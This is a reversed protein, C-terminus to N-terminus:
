KSINFTFQGSISEALRKFGWQTFLTWIRLNKQDMNGSTQVSYLFIRGLFFETNPCKERWTQHRSFPWIKLPGVLKITLKHKLSARFIIFVTILALINSITFRRKWELTMNLAATFPNAFFTPLRWTSLARSYFSFTGIVIRMQWGSVVLRLEIVSAM